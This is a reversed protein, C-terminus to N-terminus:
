SSPRRRPAHAQELAGGICRGRQDVTRPGDPDDPEDGRAERLVAAPRRDDPGLQTVHDARRTAAVAREVEARRELRARVQEHAVAAVGARGAELERRVAPGLEHLAEGRECGVRCRPIRARHQVDIEHQRREVDVVRQMAIERAERRAPRAVGLREHGDEPERGGAHARRGAAVALQRQFPAEVDEVADRESPRVDRFDDALAIPQVDHRPQGASPETAVLRQLEVDTVHGQGPECGSAAARSPVSAAADSATTGAHGARDAGIRRAGTVRVPGADDPREESGPRAITPRSITAITM